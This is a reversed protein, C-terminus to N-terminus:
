ALRTALNPKLRHDQKKLNLIGEFLSFATEVLMRENWTGRKCIKLNTPNDDKAKFGTDALVVMKEEFDEIVCHFVTDHINASCCNWRVIQGWQNLLVFFKAGVIWRHNCKGKRAFHWECRGERIPHLLEIGLTDCVGLATAHAMFREALHHYQRLLRFLRSQEPLRPFLPRLEKQVWRYFARYGQGRLAYLLGLTVVESPHLQSLAPKKQDLLADDVRCFLEITFDKAPLPQHLSSPKTM